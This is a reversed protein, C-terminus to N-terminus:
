RQKRTDGDSLQSALWVVDANLESDIGYKDLDGSVQSMFKQGALMKGKLGSKSTLEQYAYDGLIEKQANSILKAAKKIQDFNKKDLKKQENTMRGRVSNLQERMKTYNPDTLYRTATNIASIYEKNKSIDNSRKSSLLEYAAAKKDGRYRRVGAETLTGDENQYRRIGWKMGRIGYHLLQDDM